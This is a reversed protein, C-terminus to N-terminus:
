LSLWNNEILLQLLVEVPLGVVNNYSGDISHVLFTGIGQISYAGAKDLPEVTEAYAALQDAPTQNFRVITTVERGVSQGTQKDLVFFSTIVQHEKGNLQELMPLVDAKSHPKGLIENNLVVITDAAIILDDKNVLEAVTEGKEKALRRAYTVPDEGPKVSEDVDATVITFQLQYRELYSKRRPSGSALVISRNQKFKIM